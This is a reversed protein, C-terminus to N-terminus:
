AYGEESRRLAAEARKRGTIDTFAANWRTLSGSEDRTCLGTLHLWRTERGRVIRTEFGVRITKAAFHANVTNIYRNRDESHLPFRALFDARGRFTTDPPLGCMELLRPSAYFEDTAVIWEIHGDGAATMALAYREESRRLADVANSREIAISALHTLREIRSQEEASPAEREDSYIAFTGLVRGDSSVIPTSWCARLGHESALARFDPSWRQDTGLDASLVQERLHAALACPGIGVG